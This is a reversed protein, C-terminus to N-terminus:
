KKRFDGADAGGDDDAATTYPNTAQTYENPLWHGRRKSVLAATIWVIAVSQIATRWGGDQGIRLADATSYITNGLFLLVGMWLFRNGASRYRWNRVTTFILLITAASVAMNFYRGVTVATQWTDHDM